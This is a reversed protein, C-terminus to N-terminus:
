SGEMQRLKPTTYTLRPVPLLLLVRCIYFSRFCVRGPQGRTALDEQGLQDAPVSLDLQAVRYLDM